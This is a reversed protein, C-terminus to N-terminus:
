NIKSSKNINEKKSIVNFGISAGIMGGKKVSSYFINVPINLGGSTFTRGFGMVWKTSISLDGRSDLNTTYAYKPATSVGPSSSKPLSNYDIESWYHGAGKGYTNDKDFFGKSTKKFGFSPGFAFEWGKKGFRFGNMFALTPIFSSHELGSINVITEFLASFKQTVNFVQPSPLFNTYDSYSSIWM